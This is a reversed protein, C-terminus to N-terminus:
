QKPRLWVTPRTRFGAVPWGVDNPLNVPEPLGYHRWVGKIQGYFPWTSDLLLADFRNASLAADVGTILHRRVSPEAILVESIAMEHAFSRKGAMVALYPHYPVWVDGPVAALQRVLAEGARVDGPTPVWPAPRYGLWAFQVLGLVLVGSVLGRKWRPALSASLLSEHVALGFLVAMWAYLPLNVNTASGVNLRSLLSIGGLTATMALTFIWDVDWRRRARAILYVGILGLAAGLPILLEQGFFVVLMSKQLYHRRPLDFLYVTSWGQSWHALLGYVGLPLLVAPVSFALAGPRRYVWVFILMMAVFAVGQQKTLCALGVLLGAGFMSRSDARWRLVYGAAVVLTLFLCDVRAIDFWTGTLPYSAAYFGLAVLGAWASSTERRVWAVILAGTIVSSAFSTLRLPLFGDGLVAAPIASLYFYLPAYIYPVFDITPPVYLAEGAMVRQLQILSGGEMWELEFPHNIRMFVIALVLLVHGIAMAAIIAKMWAAPTKLFPPIV